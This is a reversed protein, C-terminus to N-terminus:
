TVPTVNCPQFTGYDAEALGVHRCKVSTDVMIKYGHKRAHSCFTFDESLCEEKPMLGQMNVRWDFWHSGPRQPPLRQLVDRHILLCGSGVVDVEVLSNPKFQTVWQGVPKMMVPVAAPPSRRCYMGSVIPFRHNMLRLVADHPPIVDSDLMFVYTAGIELARMCIANRAMDYPMGAVAM